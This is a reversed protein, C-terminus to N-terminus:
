NSGYAITPATRNSANVSIAKVEAAIGEHADGVSCIPHGNTAYLVSIM